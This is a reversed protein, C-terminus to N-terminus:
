ASAPAKWRNLIELIIGMIVGKVLEAALWALALEGPMPLYVYFVAQQVGLLAGIFFGFRMSARYPCGCKGVPGTTIKSRWCQYFGSIALAFFATKGMCWLGRAQMEAETRWLAATAKYHDMLLHAHVIFDYGWFFLFLVVASLLWHRCNCNNSLM